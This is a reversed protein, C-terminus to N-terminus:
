KAKNARDEEKDLRKFFNRFGHADGPAFAKIHRGRIGRPADKLLIKRTEGAGNVIVLKAKAPAILFGEIHCKIAGHDFVEPWITKLSLSEELEDFLRGREAHLDRVETM